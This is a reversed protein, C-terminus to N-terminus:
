NKLTLFDKIQKITVNQGNLKNTVYLFLYQNKISTVSLLMKILIERSFEEPIFIEILRFSLEDGANLAHIIPDDNTNNFFSTVRSYDANLLSNNFILLLARLTLGNNQIEDNLPVDEVSLNILSFINEARNKVRFIIAEESSIELIIPRDDTLKRLILNELEESSTNDHNVLKLAIVFVNSYNEFSFSAIEKTAETLNECEVQVVKDNHSSIQQSKRPFKALEYCEPSNNGSLNALENSEDSEMSTKQPNSEKIYFNYISFFIFFLGVSTIILIVIFSTLHSQQAIEKVAFNNYINRNMPKFPYKKDCNSSLTSILIKVEDPKTAIGQICSFNVELTNLNRLNDFAGSEISKLNPASFYLDKINPTSAFINKPIIKISSTSILLNTLKKGFPKLDDKIIEELKEFNLMLANINPFHDLIGEPIFHLIQSSAEIYSVDMNSLGNAHRGRVGTIELTSLDNVVCGYGHLINSFRFYCQIKDSHTLFLVSAIIIIGTIM